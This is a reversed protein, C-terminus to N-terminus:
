HLSLKITNALLFLSKLLHYNITSSHLFPMNVHYRIREADNEKGKFLEYNDQVSYLVCLFFVQLAFNHIFRTTSWFMFITVHVAFQLTM